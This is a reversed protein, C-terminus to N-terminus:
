TKGDCRDLPNRPSPNEPALVVAGVFFPFTWHGSQKELLEFFTLHELVGHAAGNGFHVIHQEAGQRHIRLRKMEVLLEGLARLEAM